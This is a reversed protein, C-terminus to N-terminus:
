RVLQAPDFTIRGPGDITVRSGALVTPREV